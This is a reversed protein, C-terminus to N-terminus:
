SHIPLQQMSLLQARLGNNISMSITVDRDMNVADYRAVTRGELSWRRILSTDRSTDAPALPKTRGVIQSHSFQAYAFGPRLQRAGSPKSLKAYIGGGTGSCSLLVM